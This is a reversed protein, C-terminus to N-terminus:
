LEIMSHKIINFDEKNIGTMFIQIDIKDLERFLIKKTNQDIHSCIEDLLLISTGNSIKSSFITKAIILSMLLTKQEGTSCLSAIINKNKNYLLIDSKHIGYNTRKQVKDQLRFKFLNKRYVNEIDIAKSDSLSKEIDGTLEIKSTPFNNIENELIDNLYKITNNRVGAISTGLEAIKREVIDLWNDYKEQTTLIKMREKLFFEYKRVNDLHNIYLMDCTRDLFRRRNLSGEIFFGDMQPVFYTISLINSLENLNKLNNDNYKIIKKDIKQMLLIKEGNSFKIFISFLVDIPLFNNNRVLSTLERINASRIGRFNSFLSIAELINTKGLGNNGAIVNIGDYFNFAKCSYNRFNNLIVETIYKSSM